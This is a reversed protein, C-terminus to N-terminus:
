PYLVAYGGGAAQVAAWEDEDMCHDDAGDNTSFVEIERGQIQVAIDFDVNSLRRYGNGEPDEQM